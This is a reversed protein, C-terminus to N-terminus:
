LDLRSRLEVLHSTAHEIGTIDNAIHGAVESHTGLNARKGEAQPSPARLVPELASALEGVALQLRQIAEMQRELMQRVNTPTGAGLQDILSGAHRQQRVSQAQQVEEASLLGGRADRKLEINPYM